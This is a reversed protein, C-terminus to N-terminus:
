NFRWRGSLSLGFRANGTDSLLSQFDTVAMNFEYIDSGIGFGLAWNFNYIGGFSFGTRIPLWNVPRYEAGFSFRPSTTNGPVNNLGQHYNMVLLMTGPFNGEITKDLQISAGLKIASPLSTSFSGIYAGEPNISNSLSDLKDSDTFDTFVVSSDVAYGVTEGTWRISGLDTASLGFAWIDNVKINVGFDIGFGSGASEPFFGFDSEKNTDEFDHKIGFDPSSSMRLLLNNVVSMDANDSTIFSSNIRDLDSYFYGSIYKLSIGVSISQTQFPFDPSINRAYTVAYERTYSAGLSMDKIEYSQNIKNGFLILEAIAEPLEASASAKDTISFGFAGVKPSYNYTAALIGTNVNIGLHSDTLLALLREKDNDSLVKGTISGDANKTGTFYDNYDSVSLFNTGGIFSVNPFPIVSSIEFRYNGPAAINAPNEGLAFVGRSVSVTSNGMATTRANRVRTSGQGFIMTVSLIVLLLTTSINKMDTMWDKRILETSSRASSSLM